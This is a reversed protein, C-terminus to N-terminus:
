WYEEFHLNGKMKTAPSDAQFGRRELIEIVGRPEPYTREGTDRNKVPAGIMKPNGCLFVHTREPRLTEGLREELEGSTILDQIYRKGGQGERTTLPMYIYNTQRRMLDEHVSLYALDQRHRVCCASLIRGTHGRRLLEWIMANHPAEGTGTALLVMTDDPQVLDLTYHGTVKPGLFLRDGDTLAFLRPTLAPASGSESERVLVIYFELEEGLSVVLDGRSDLIPSSISYARRVLREEDDSPLVEPQCGTLRPEWNGLGLTGYQGPKISPLPSDPRVLLRMLDGHPKDMWVVSANYRQQRLEAIKEPNVM